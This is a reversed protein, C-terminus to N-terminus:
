KQSKKVKKMMMTAKVKEMKKMRKAEMSKKLTRKWFVNGKLGSEIM